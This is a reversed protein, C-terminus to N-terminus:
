LPEGHGPDGQVNFLSGLASIELKLSSVKFQFSRAANERSLELFWDCPSGEAQFAAKRSM